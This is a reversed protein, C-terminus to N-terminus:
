PTAAPEISITIGCQHQNFDDVSQIDRRSAAAAAQVGVGTTTAHQVPALDDIVHRLDLAVDAPATALLSDLAALAPRLDGTLDGSLVALVDPEARQLLQCYVAPDSTPAPHRLRRGTSGGVGRIAGAL